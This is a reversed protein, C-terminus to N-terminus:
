GVPLRLRERRRGETPHLPPGCYPAGIVTPKGLRSYIFDFSSDWFRKAGPEKIHLDPSMDSDVMMLLDYSMQQAAQVARNRCMTIPTDAIDITDVRGM